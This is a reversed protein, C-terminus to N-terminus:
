FCPSFSDLNKNLLARVFTKVLPFIFFAKWVSDLSTFDKVGIVEGIVTESKSPDYMQQSRGKMGGGSGSGGQHAPAASVVPVFALAAVVSSAVVLRKM